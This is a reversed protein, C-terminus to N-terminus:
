TTNCARQVLQESAPFRQKQQAISTMEINVHDTSMAYLHREFRRNNSTGKNAPTLSSAALILLADGDARHNPSDTWIHGARRSKKFRTGCRPNAMESNAFSRGSVKTFRVKALHRASGRRHSRVAGTPEAHRWSNKSKEEVRNM